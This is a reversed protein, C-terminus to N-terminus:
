NNLIKNPFGNAELLSSHIPALLEQLMELSRDIDSSKVNKSFMGSDDFLAEKIVTVLATARDINVYNTEIFDNLVKEQEETFKEM